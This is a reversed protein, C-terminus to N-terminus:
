TSLMYAKLIAKFHNVNLLICFFTQKKLGLLFFFFFFTKVVDTM